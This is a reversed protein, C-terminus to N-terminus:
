NARPPARAEPQSLSPRGDGSHASLRLRCRSPCLPHWSRGSTSGPFPPEQDESSDGDVTPSAEVRTPPIGSPDGDGHCVVQFATWLPPAPHRFVEAATIPASLALGFVVLWLMFCRYMSQRNLIPSVSREVSGRCRGVAAHVRGPDRGHATMSCRRGTYGAAVIRAGHSRARAGGALDHGARWWGLRSLFKFDEHDVRSWRRGSQFRRHPSFPTSM